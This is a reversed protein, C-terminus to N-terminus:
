DRLIAMAFSVRNKAKTRNTNALRKAAPQPSSPQPPQPQSQQSPPSSQNALLSEKGMMPREM